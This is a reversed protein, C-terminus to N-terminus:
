SQAIRCRHSYHDRSAARGAPQAGTTQRGAQAAQEIDRQNLRFGDAGDTDALRRYRRYAIEMADHVNVLLREHARRLRRELQADHEVVPPRDTVAVDVREAFDAPTRPHGLKMFEPQFGAVLPEAAAQVFVAEFEHGGFGALKRLVHLVGPQVEGKMYVGRAVGRKEALQALRGADLAHIAFDALDPLVCLRASDLRQHEVAPRRDLAIQKDVAGPEPRQQDAIGQTYADFVPAVPQGGVPGDGHLGFRALRRRRVRARNRVCRPPLPANGQLVPDAVADDVAAPKKGVILRPVRQQTIQAPCDAALRAQETEAGATAAFGPFLVADRHAQGATEHFRQLGRADVQYHGANEAEDPQKREALVPLGQRAAEVLLGPHFHLRDSVKDDQM